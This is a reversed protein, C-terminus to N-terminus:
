RARRQALVRDVAEALNSRLREPSVGLEYRQHHYLDAALPALLLEAFWAADIDPAAELLLVTAHLRWARYAGVHFRSSPTCSQLMRLLPLNENTLEALAHLFAILRERPPAGPGLPAPGSLLREQFWREREDLLAACLGAKDGFRRYVTGVGVGAARAVERIDVAEAGSRSLLGQAAALVRTRNRLADRREVVAGWMPLSQDRPGPGAASRDDM